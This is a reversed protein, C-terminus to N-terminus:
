SGSSAMSTGKHSHSFVLSDIQETLDKALGVRSLFVESDSVFSSMLPFIDIMPSTLFFSLDKSAKFESLKKKQESLTYRDLDESDTFYNVTAIQYLLDLSMNAKLREKLLKLKFLLDGIQGKNGHRECEEIYSILVEDDVGRRYQVIFHNNFYERLHPTDIHSKFRYYQIGNLVFAKEIKGKFSPHYINRLDSDKKFLEKIIRIM